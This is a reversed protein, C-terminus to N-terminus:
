LIASAQVVFLFEDDKGLTSKHYKLLKRHMAVPVRDARRLHGVSVPINSEKLYLIRQGLEATELTLVEPWEPIEYIECKEQELMKFNKEM